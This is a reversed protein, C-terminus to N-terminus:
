LYLVTILFGGWGSVDDVRVLKIGILAKTAVAALGIVCVGDWIQIRFVVQVVVVLTVVRRGQCQPGRSGLRITTAGPKVSAINLSRMTRPITRARSFTRSCYTTNHRDGRRPPYALNTRGHVIQRALGLTWLTAGFWHDEM